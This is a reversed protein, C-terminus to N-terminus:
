EVGSENGNQVSYNNTDRIERGDLLEWSLSYRSGEALVTGSSHCHRLTSCGDFAWQDPCSLNLCRRSSKGADGVQGRIQRQGAM